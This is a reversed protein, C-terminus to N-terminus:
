QVYHSTCDDKGNQSNSQSMRRSENFDSLLDIRKVGSPDSVLGNRSTIIGFENSRQFTSLGERHLIDSHTIIERLREISSLVPRFTGRQLLNTILRNTTRAPSETGDFSSSITQANSRLSRVLITKRSFIKESATLKTTVATLASESGRCPMPETSRAHRSSSLISCRVPAVSVGEGHTFMVASALIRRAAIRFRSGLADSLALISVRDLVRPILVHELLRVIDTADILDLSLQHRVSRHLHGKVNVLIEHSVLTSDVLLNSALSQSTMSHLQHTPTHFITNLVPLNSVAPVLVPTLISEETDLHTLASNFTIDNTTKRLQTTNTQFHFSHCSAVVSIRM